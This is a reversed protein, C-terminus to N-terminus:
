YANRYSKLSFITKCIIYIDLTLSWNDIYFIDFEVRKEMKDLTETEGRHGSIQSWGTIGPKVNHRKAYLRIKKEFEGNHALAHPRPGVLSMAGGLVNFLQPLEDLNTRRLFAGFRTIREDNRRAQRIVQGDELTTMTRFKMIRFQGQNFGHRRQRFFVPGKSNLKILLAIVAFLPLAALLLMSGAILDFGRKLIRDKLTLPARSLKVTPLSGVRAPSLQHTWASSADPALHITAPVVALGRVFGKISNSESWPM